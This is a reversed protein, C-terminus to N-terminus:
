WPNNPRGPHLVLWRPDVANTSPGPERARGPQLKREADSNILLTTKLFIYYLYPYEFIHVDGGIFINIYLRDRHDYRFIQTPKIKLNMFDIILIMESGVSVDVKVLFYNTTFVVLNFRRFRVLMKIKKGGEVSM